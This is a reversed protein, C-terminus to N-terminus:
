ALQRHKTPFVLENVAIQFFAVSNKTSVRQKYLGACLCWYGLIELYFWIAYSRDTNTALKAEFM